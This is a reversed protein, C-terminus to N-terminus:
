RALDFILFSHLHRKFTAKSITEFNPTIKQHYSNWDKAIINAINFSGYRITNTRRVELHSNSNRTGHNHNTGSLRLFDTFYEPLKNNLHDLAFLCNRLILQKRVPLIKSQAYLPRPSDRIGKFHIIKLAKNQLREIQEFSNQLSFGLSPLCYTLHSNFLAHYVSIMTSYDLYYRLKALMGTSRALKVALNNLQQKWSLNEDLILGLYKTHTSHHIRQGSLRFNLKKTITKRQDRFIVIETKSSNLSIKNARLWQVLLSM